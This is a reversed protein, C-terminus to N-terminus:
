LFRDVARAPAAFEWHGSVGRAAAAAQPLVRQFQSEEAASVANAATALRSYTITDIELNELRIMDSGRRAVVSVGAFVRSRGLQERRRWASSGRIDLRAVAAVSRERGFPDSM